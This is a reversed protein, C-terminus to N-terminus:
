SGVTAMCEIEVKAGAALGTAAFTSRAPKEGPFFSVYVENMASFDAMDTLIVLCKVVRDMSSGYRELAAEIGELTARTEAQIGGEALGQGPVSGIKGSLYLMNGVRVAESFPRGPRAGEPNLFELEPAPEAVPEQAVARAPATVLLTAAGLFAATSLVYTRRVTM